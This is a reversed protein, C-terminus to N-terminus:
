KGLLWHVGTMIAGGIAGAFVLSAAYAGRGRNLAAELEAIQEFLRDFMEKAEVAHSKQQERLGRIQEELVAIKVENSM